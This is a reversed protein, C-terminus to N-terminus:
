ELITQMQDLRHHLTQILALQSANAQRGSFYYEVKGSNIELRNQEELLKWLQRVTGGCGDIFTTHPCLIRHFVPKFYNFHTCGLVLASFDELHYVSLQERLYQEVVPSDFEQCEAFHVLGPLALLDVDHTPDVQEILHHLKEERITVPTAAVLIRRHNPYKMALRVAPEVGIIPFDYHKRLYPAAVSTATNCAIVVTKAGHDRLFRVAEESYRLIQENTKEGYPVHDTDAYFIYDERPLTQLAQHLVSLGGIGSDFFGIKM